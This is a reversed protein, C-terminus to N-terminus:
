YIDGLVKLINDMSYGKRYLSAMIKQKKEKPINGEGDRYKRIIKEINAIEIDTNDMDTMLIEIIDKSIGRKQM